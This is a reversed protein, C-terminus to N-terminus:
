QNWGKALIIKRLLEVHESKCPNHMKRQRVLKMNIPTPPYEAFALINEVTKIPDAIMDSYEIIIHQKDALFQKREASLRKMQSYIELLEDENFPMSFASYGKSFASQWCNTKKSFL